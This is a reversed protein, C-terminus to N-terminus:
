SVTITWWMGLLATVLTMVSATAAATAANCDVTAYSTLDTGEVCEGTQGSWDHTMYGLTCSSSNSLFFNFSTIGSVSSCAITAYSVSTVSFCDSVRGGDSADNSVSVSGSLCTTVNCTTSSCISWPVAYSRQAIACLVLSVIVARWLRASRM